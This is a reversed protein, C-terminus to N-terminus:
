RGVAGPGPGLANGFPHEHIRRNTARLERSNKETRM